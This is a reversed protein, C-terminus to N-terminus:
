RSTTPRSFSLLWATATRFGLRNALSCFCLTATVFVLCSGLPISINWPTLHTLCLSIVFLLTAKVVLRTVRATWSFNTISRGVYLMGFVRGLYLLAFAIAVGKLGFIPICTVVLGLHLGAFILETAVFWTALAKALQLYTVPWIIVRGFIGILFWPLLPAAQAFKSTYLVTLLYPAYIIAALLCPLSLLIGIEIQHNVLLNAARDDTSLASLRPYFDTSMAQLIFNAFVGSIGWAAAYLGNAEIGYRSLLISRVALAVGAALLGSIMFSFGLSLLSKWAEIAPTAHGPCINSISPRVFLYSLVTSILATFLIAPIIGRAGMIAYIAVYLASTALTCVINYRALVALRGVGQIIALHGATVSGLLLTLGLVAINPAYTSTGFTFRSLPIALLVTITAGLLGSCLSAIRVMRMVSSSEAVNLSASAKAVERVGSSAIGLGTASGVLSTTSTYLDVLGVGQPGLFIAIAKNRLFGIVLTAAQVGGVL